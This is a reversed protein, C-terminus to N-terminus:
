GHLFDSSIHLLIRLAIRAAFDKKDAGAWAIRAQDGNAAQLDHAGGVDDNVVLEASGGEEAHGLGAGFEDIDALSRAIVRQRLVRDVAKEDITSPLAFQDDAELASVRKDEASAAFFHFFECFGADREFENGTDGGANGARSIGPNWDRM